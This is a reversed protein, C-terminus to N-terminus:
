SVLELIPIAGKSVLRYNSNRPLIVEFENSAGIPAFGVFAGRSGKPIRIEIIGGREAGMTRVHAEAVKRLLTTSVFGKDEIESGVKYGQIEDLGRVARYTVLPKSFSGRSLSSDLLEVHEEYSSLDKEERLRSNISQYAGGTYSSIAWREDRNLSEYWSGFENEAWTNVKTVDNPNSPDLEGFNVGGRPVHTGKPPGWWGRGPGETKTTFRLGRIQPIM